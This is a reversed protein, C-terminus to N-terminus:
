KPFGLFDIQHCSDHFDPASTRWCFWETSIMLEGHFLVMKRHKEWPKGSFGTRKVHVLSAERIAHLLHHRGGSAGPAYFM